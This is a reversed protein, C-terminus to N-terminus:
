VIDKWPPLGYGRRIIKGQTNLAIVLGSSLPTKIGQSEALRFEGSIIKEWIDL